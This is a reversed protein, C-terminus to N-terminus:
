RRRNGPRQQQGDRRRGLGHRQAEAVERVDRVGRCDDADVATGEGLGQSRVDRQLDGVEVGAAFRDLGQEGPGDIGGEDAGVRRDVAEGLGVALRQSNDGAGGRAPRAQDDGVPDVGGVIEARLRREGRGGEAVGLVDGQPRPEGLVPKCGVGGTAAVHRDDVDLVGLREGQELLTADGPGPHGFRPRGAEDEFTAAMDEDVLTVQPGVTLEDRRVQDDLGSEELILGLDDRPQEVSEDVRDVRDVGVRRGGQRRGVVPDLRDRRAPQSVLRDGSGELIEREGDVRDGRRQLARGVIGDGDTQELVDVESPDVVQRQEVLDEGLAPEVGDAVLEGCGVGRFSAHGRGVSRRHDAQGADALREAVSAVRDGGQVVDIERHSSRSTTQRTPADPQPM